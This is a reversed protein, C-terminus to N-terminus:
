KAALVLAGADNRVLTAITLSAADTVYWGRGGPTLSVRSFALGDYWFVTKSNVEEDTATFTSGVAAPQLIFYKRIADRQAIVAAAATMNRTDSTVGRGHDHFVFSDKEPYDPEVNLLLVCRKADSPARLDAIAHAAATCIQTDTANVARYASLESVSSVCCLAALIAAFMANAKAGNKWRGFVLDALADAALALGCLSPVTNRLNFWPSALAFFAALPALALLLGTLLEAFFRVSTRRVSRAAVYFSFSLALVLLIYIFNPSSGLLAFGHLLGRGLTAGGGTVFATKLQALLPLLVAARYGKQWPLLLAPLAAHGPALRTFAFYLLIGGLFLWGRHARQRESQPRSVMLALTLASSLLIIQEHFCFAMLQFVAFGALSRKKGYMCWRDFCLLSLAAFFLGPVLRTAASLWYCGEFGLPLLAYVIYFVYGTGFRRRFVAHLLVASVAYLGALVAAAAFLNQALLPWVFADCLGALPRSALAGGTWLERLTGLGAAATGSFRTYDDLQRFYVPGYYSYRILILGFLLVATLVDMRVSVNVTNSKRKTKKM